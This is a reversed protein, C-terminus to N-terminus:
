ARRAARRETTGAARMHIGVSAGPRRRRSGRSHFSTNSMDVTDACAGGVAASRGRHNERTSTLSIHAENAMVAIHSATSNQEMKPGSKTAMLPAPALVVVMGEPIMT